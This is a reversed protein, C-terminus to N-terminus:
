LRGKPSGFLSFMGKGKPEPAPPEGGKSKAAVAEYGPDGPHLYPCADDTCDVGDPCAEELEGSPEAGTLRETAMEAPSEMAEEEATGEEIPLTDTSPASKKKGLNRFPNGKKEADSPGSKGEQGSPHKKSPPKAGKRFPNEAM